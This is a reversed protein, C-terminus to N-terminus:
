RSHLVQHRILGTKNRFCKGCVLCPYPKEGTHIKQHELLDSKQTFRKGCESCPYPKEGSHFRQHKVLYSKQPFCKGCELCPYPKVGTHIRQHTILYTRHMFRKGCESCLFPREGTHSRQHEVLSSKQNFCKECESCSYPKEGTHIRLHERLKAKTVFCKACESCAFPREGTHIRQHEVLASKKNFQKGCESCPFPKEATHILKHNSLVASPTVIQSQGPSPEKPNPANSSPDTSHIIPLINLIIFAKGSSGSPHQVIEEAKYNPSSVFNEELNQSHIDTGVDKPIEEEKCPQDSWICTEDESKVELKVTTLDEGQHDQPVDDNEEPCDQSYLPGAFREPPNRQSSGDTGIDRPIEEEKCPQDGRVYAEDEESKVELKVNTLDEGGHDQLVNDNEQSYLPAPCKDPPNEKRLGYQQDVRMYKEEEEDIAEVKIDLLGEIQHHQPVRGNEEPYGSPCTKSSGDPPTHNEMMVDKYLDRKGPSTRDRHDEMM